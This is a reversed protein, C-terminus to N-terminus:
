LERLNNLYWYITKKLNEEFKKGFSINLKKQIKSSNIGYRLDHAPRDKVFSILQSYRKKNKRPKVIDLIKCIKKVLDINKIESDGGINYTEGIGGKKLLSFIAKCHDEVYLWDRINLGKGYIPIKKKVSLM